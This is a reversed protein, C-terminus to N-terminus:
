ISWAVGVEKYSNKRGFFQGEFSYGKHYAIYFEHQFSAERNCMFGLKIVRTFAWDCIEWAQWDVASFFLLDINQSFFNCANYVMEIGVNVYGRKMPFSMDSHIIVGGGGYVRCSGWFNKIGIVELIEMSPNKRTFQEDQNELFEDGLHSSIHFGRIRLSSSQGIFSLVGGGLFDVNMLECFYGLDSQVDSFNFASWLCTELGVQFICPAFCCSRFLVFENGVVVYAQVPGIVEDGLRLSSGSYVHRPNALFPSFCTAHEPFVGWFPTSWYEAKEEPSCGEMCNEKCSIVIDSWVQEEFLVLFAVLLCWTAQGVSYVAM